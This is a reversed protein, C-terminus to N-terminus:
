KFCRSRIRNWFGKQCFKRRKDYPHCKSKYAPVEQKPPKPIPTYDILKPINSLFHEAIYEETLYYEVEMDGFDFDDSVRIIIGIPATIDPLKKVWEGVRTEISQPTEKGDNLKVLLAMLVDFGEGVLAKGKRNEVYVKGIIVAVNVTLEAM